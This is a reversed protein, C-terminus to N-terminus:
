GDVVPNARKATRRLRVAFPLIRVAHGKGHANQGVCPLPRVTCKQGAFVNATRRPSICRVVCNKTTRFLHRVAIFLHQRGDARPSSTVSERGHAASCARSRHYEKDHTVHSPARCFITWACPQCHGRGHTVHRPARCLITWACPLGHGKDRTVHRPARCLITWTCPPGRGKGHMKHRPARCLIPLKGHM